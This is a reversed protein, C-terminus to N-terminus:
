CSFKLGVDPDRVPRLCGFPETGSDSMRVGSQHAYNVCLLGSAEARCHYDGFRLSSGNELPSGTGLAFRGPDAHASGVRLTTGDFDVWGGIWQGYISGPPAPPDSLNVLCALAGGSKADTMCKTTGSATVFAIDDGLQSSVGDRTATHFGAADAPHGAAVWATVASMPADAPPPTSPVTSTLTTKSPPMATVASPAPRTATLQTRGDVSQSCGAVALLVVALVVIRM